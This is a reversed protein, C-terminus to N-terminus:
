AGRQSIFSVCAYQMFFCLWWSGGDSSQRCILFTFADQLALIWVCHMSPLKSVNWINFIQQVNNSLKNFDTSKFQISNVNYAENYAIHHHIIIDNNYMMEGLKFKVFPDLQM